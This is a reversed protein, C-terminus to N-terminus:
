EGTEFQAADGDGSSLQQDDFVHDGGAALDRHRCGIETLAARLDGIGETDHVALFAPSLRQGGGSDAQV